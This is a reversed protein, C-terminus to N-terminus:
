DQPVDGKGWKGRLQQGKDRRWDGRLKTSSRVSGSGTSTYRSWRSSSGFDRLNNGGRRGM